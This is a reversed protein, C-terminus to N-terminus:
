SRKLKRLEATVLQDFETSHLRRLAALARHRATDRDPDRKLIGPNRARWDRLYAARDVTM